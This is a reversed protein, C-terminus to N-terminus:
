ICGFKDIVGSRLNGIFIVCYWGCCFVFCFFYDGFGVVCVGGINYIFIFMLFWFRVNLIIYCLIYKSFDNLKM